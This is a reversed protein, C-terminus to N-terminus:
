CSCGGNNQKTNTEGGSPLLETLDTKKNSEPKKALKECIQDFILHVNNATKASCEFFLAGKADAYFQGAKKPVERENKLDSKNAVIVYVIDPQQLQVEKFWFDVQEYSAPDTIDYVIVVVEAGRYYKNTLARFREQGATDWINYRFAQDQYVVTKTLFAAGLTATYTHEFHDEVLRTVLSTKGVNMEGLMCLKVDRFQKDAKRTGAM